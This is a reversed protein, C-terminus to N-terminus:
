HDVTPIALLAIDQYHADTSKRNSIHEALKPKNELYWGLGKRFGPLKDIDVQRFVQVAFLPIVGVISRTQLSKQGAPWRLQDYYFGDEDDWLGGGVSNIADIIAVFHEFFKSAIDEYPPPNPGIRIGDGDNRWLLVGDM